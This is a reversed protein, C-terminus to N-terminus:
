FGISGINFNYFVGIGGSFQDRSGFTRVIPSDAADGVLRDYGVFGYLGWDDSLMHTLGAYVGISHFGDDADFVPLGTVASVGPTVSFYSDHYDDDGWRARPGISFVYTDRDRIVVDALIDSVWGDHGGLGKRGEARLRFNDGFFVEAFAGVEVTFGVDGVLAGVDEEQRKGVFQLTPGFDFASDDGLFGFGAGEDPAEFPIPAGERRLGFIPMPGFGYNDAGPYKPDIRPGIGLSLIWDRGESEEEQAAAPSTWLATVALAALVASRFPIRRDM